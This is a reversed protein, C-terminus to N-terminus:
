VGVASLQGTNSVQIRFATGNESYLTLRRHDIHFFGQVDTRSQDSEGLRVGGPASLRLSDDTDEFRIQGTLESNRYNRISTHGAQFHSVQFKQEIDESDRNIIEFDPVRPARYIMFGSRDAVSLDRRNGGHSTNSSGYVAFRPYTANHLGLEAIEQGEDVGSRLVARGTGGMNVEVRKNFLFRNSIILM